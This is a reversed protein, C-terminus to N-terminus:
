LPPDGLEAVAERASKLVDPGRYYMSV